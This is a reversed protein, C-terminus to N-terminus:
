YTPAEAPHGIRSKVDLVKSITSPTTGRSSGDARPSIECRRAPTNRLGLAARTEQPQPTEEGAPTARCTRDSPLRRLPIPISPLPRRKREPSGPQEPAPRSAGWGAGAGRVGSPRRMVPVGKSESRDAPPATSRSKGCVFSCAASAVDPWALLVRSSPRLSSSALGRPACRRLCGVV